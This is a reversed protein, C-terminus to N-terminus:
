PHLVFDVILPMHDSPFHGNIRAPEIAHILILSKENSFIHDLLVGPTGKGKFPAVSNTAPEDTFSAIPGLHGLVALHATDRLSDKTLIKLIYDGDYFPLTPMDLRHPLTNFDGTLFTPMKKSTEEVYKQIIKASHERQDVSFWPMHTNFVAFQIGTKRDRLEIKTLTHPLSMPFDSDLIWTHSSILDFRDTRFFIGDIEGKEKNQEGYFTFIEKLKPLINDLQNQHLEQTCLIDPQIWEILQILRPWRSPWRNEPEQKSDTIDFLMNYSVLRIRSDKLSLAQTIQLFQGFSYKKSSLSEANEANEITPIITDTIKACFLSASILCLAIFQIFM